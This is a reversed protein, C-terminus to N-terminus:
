GPYPIDMAQRKAMSVDNLVPRGEPGRLIHQPVFRMTRAPFSAACRAAIDDNARVSQAVQQPFLFAKVLTAIM